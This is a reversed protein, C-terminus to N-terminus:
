ENEKKAPDAWETKYKKYEDLEAQYVTMTFRPDFEITKNILEQASTLTYDYIEWKHQVSRQADDLLKQLKGVNVALQHAKSSLQKFSDLQPQTSRRMYYVTNGAYATDTRYRLQAITALPM